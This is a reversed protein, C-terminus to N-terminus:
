GPPPPKPKAAPVMALMNSPASDSRYGSRGSSRKARRPLGFVGIKSSAIRRRPVDRATMTPSVSSVSMAPARAAPRSATHISVPTVAAMAAAVGSCRRGVQRM